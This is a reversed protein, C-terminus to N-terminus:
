RPDEQKIYIAEKQSQNSCGPNFTGTLLGYRLIINAQSAAAPKFISPNMLREARARAAAQGLM